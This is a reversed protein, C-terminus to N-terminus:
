SKAEWRWISGKEARILSFRKQSGQTSCILGQEPNLDVSGHNLRTGPAQQRWSGLAM